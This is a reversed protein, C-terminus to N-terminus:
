EPRIAITIDAVNTGTAGIQLLDGLKEFFPYSDHRDLALKADLGCDIARGITCENVTAGAADTPGDNGDTALTAVWASTNKQTSLAIAAALALEQNRGGKGPCDPPLTVTTEGGYILVTKPPTTLIEQAIERGRIQAEGALKTTVVQPHYGLEGATAAVAACAQSNSGIIFNEAAPHNTLGSAIAAISDGIVDSLILGVVQGPLAREVLGGGKLRDLKARVANIRAIDLGSNLLETNIAQVVNLPLPHTADVTALDIHLSAIAARVIQASIASPPESLLQQLSQWSLPATVLASAGGSICALVLTRDTSNALFKEVRDGAQLSREDPTPHGATLVTWAVPLEVVGLQARNTVVLGNVIQSDLISSIAQAMPLAAKGLALCYIERDALDYSLQDAIVLRDGNRKVARDIATAPNVANLAASRLAAILDNTMM